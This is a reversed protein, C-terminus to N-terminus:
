LCRRPHQPVRTPFIWCVPPQYRHHSFLLMACRLLRRL